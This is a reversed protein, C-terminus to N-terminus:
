EVKRKVSSQLFGVSRTVLKYSLYSSLIVGVLLPVIVDVFYYQIISLKRGPLDLATSVDYKLAHQVFGIIRDKPQFPKDAMMRAFQLSREQYSTQLVTTLAHVMNKQTIEHKDIMVALGKEQASFCNHNQDGFVPICVFPKGKHASESVSNLGGHTVFALLKPHALLDSQPTWKLKHVNTLNAAVDDDVEYKWIFDYEPFAKFTEILEQKREQPLLYSKAITGFSILIVGKKSKELIDNINEPLVHDRGMHEGVGGIYVFKESLPQQYALHEDINVFVYSSKAIADAHNFDARYYKRIAEVPYSEFTHWTIWRKIPYMLFAKARQLYTMQSGHDDDLGSTFAINTPNGMAELVMPQLMVASASIVKNIGAKEALAHACYDLHEAIVLDFNQARFMDTVSDDKLQSECADGMLKGYIKYVEINDLLEDGNHWVDDSPQDRCGLECPRVIVHAKKTGVKTISTFADQQYFTVNHGAEVLVDAIKGMFFIHSQGIRASNLLLIKECTIQHFLVLLVTTLLLTAKMKIWTNKVKLGVGFNM